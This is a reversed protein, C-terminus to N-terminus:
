KESNLNIKNKSSTSLMLSLFYAIFLIGRQRSLIPEFFGLIVIIFLFSALMNLQYRYAFYFLSGFLYIMIILGIVGHSIAAQLFINHADVTLTEVGIISEINNKISFESIIRDVTGTGHGFLIKSKWADIGIDWIQLRSSISRLIKEYFMFSLLIFSSVFGLIIFKKIRINLSKVAFYSVIILGTFVSIVGAYIINWLILVVILLYKWKKLNQLSLLILISFNVYMGAYNKHYWGYISTRTKYQISGIRDFFSVGDYQFPTIIYYWSAYIGIYIVYVLVGSVFAIYIADFDINRKKSLILPFVFFPLLQIVKNIGIEYQDIRIGIIQLIFLVLLPSALFQYNIKKQIIDHLLFHLVLMGSAIATVILPLPLPILFAFIALLKTDLSNESGM